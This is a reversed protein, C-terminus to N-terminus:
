FYPSQTVSIRQFNKFDTGCHLPYGAFHWTKNMEGWLASIRCPGLICQARYCGLGNADASAEGALASGPRGRSVGVGLHCFNFCIERFNEVAWTKQKAHQQMNGHFVSIRKMWLKHSVSRLWLACLYHTMNSARELDQTKSTLLAGGGGGCVAESQILSYSRYDAHTCFVM